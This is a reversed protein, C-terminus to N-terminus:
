QNIIEISVEQLGKNYFELQKVAAKTLDITRKSKKPLRDNVRVIVTKQNSLNTVKLMTGFKYRKHACTLSDQRFIEGSACKRGEFKQAYYSAVGKVINKDQAICNSYIFVFLFLNIILKM